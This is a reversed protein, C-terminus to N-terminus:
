RYKKISNISNTVKNVLFYPITAVITAILPNLVYFNAVHESYQNLTSYVGFYLTFFMVSNLLNVSM